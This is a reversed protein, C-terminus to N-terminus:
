KFNFTMNLRKEFLKELKEQNLSELEIKSIYDLNSNYPPFSNILIIIDKRSYM